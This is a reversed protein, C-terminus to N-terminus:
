EIEAKRDRTLLNLVVKRPNDGQNVIRNVASVIPLEIKYQASLDLAAPLANLGEVVMEVQEIAQTRSYGQGLLVGARFNRSQTSTATVILDGMGALGHFTQFDCGMAVGLRSIETMGRTIIAARTNDGYGLGRAIGCALAIVNKLAGALEVGKIDHNTYVRLMESMFVDQVKLAAEVSTSASVLTTPLGQAVELAHSPGSLTTIHSTKLVEALIESMTYHTKPELGKSVDVIWQKNFHPKFLKATDRINISPVAFVVMSCSKMSAMDTTLIIDDDIKISDLHKHHRNRFLDNERYHWLTVDHGGKILSLALASGWSGAGLIGIKMKIVKKM